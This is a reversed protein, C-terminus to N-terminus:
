EYLSAIADALNGQADGYDYVPNLWDDGFRLASAFGKGNHVAFLRVRRRQPHQSPIVVEDDDDIDSVPAAWGCTEVAVAHSMKAVLSSLPNDLLEYVDGHEGAVEANGNEDIAYLRATKQETNPYDGALSNDVMEMLKGIEM